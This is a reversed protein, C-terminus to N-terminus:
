LRVCDIPNLDKDYTEYALNVLAREVDKQNEIKKKLSEGISYAEKLTMNAPLAIDAEVLYNHGHHFAAVTDIYKIDKNHNVCMWTLKSLFHSNATHGTILKMQARGTVWWNIAIYFSIILAGAPDIYMLNVLKSEKRFEQSGLYGCLIAVANSAVDNRHDLALTQVTPSPVKRCLLYLVLKVVVTLSSIVLTVIDVHPPRQEGSHLGIIKSVSEKILQLSASFMIVSLIIIALPELKKRGRPYLFPDTREVARTTLWIILGSLLDVVSDVLSSLISISGSLVVATTKALLLGVNCFFSIKAFLNAKRRTIDAKHKSNHTNQEADEYAAILDDQSKYFLRVDRSVSIKDLEPGRRKTSFQDLGLRWQTEMCKIDINYLVLITAVSIDLQKVKTPLNRGFAM